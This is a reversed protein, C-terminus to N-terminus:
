RALSYLAACIRDIKRPVDEGVEVYGFAGAVQLGALTERMSGLATSFRVRRNGGRSGNAEAINLAVSAAARRVQRALDADRREIEVLVDKMSRVVELVEEYVRLM